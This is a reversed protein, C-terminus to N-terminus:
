PPTCRVPASPWEGIREADVQPQAALYTVAAHLDRAKLAPSEFDRPEGSSAGYGAFDFSLAAFGREAMARAYRDAMQQRVSTWTGSVVVGPLRASGDADAPVFLEGQLEADGSTFTAPQSSVSSISM